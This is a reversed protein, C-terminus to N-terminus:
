IAPPVSVQSRRWKLISRLATLVIYLLGGNLMGALFSTLFGFPGDFIGSTILFRSWPLAVIIPWTQSIHSLPGPLLALVWVAFVIGAYLLAARRPWGSSPSTM